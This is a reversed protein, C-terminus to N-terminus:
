DKPEGTKVANPDEVEYGHPSIPNLVPNHFFTHVGNGWPFPKIIRRLYPVDVFEPRPQKKNEMERRYVFFSTVILAPMAVFFVLFRWFREKQSDATDCYDDVNMCRFRNKPDASEIPPCSEDCPHEVSTTCTTSPESCEEVPFSTFFGTDSETKSCQNKSPEQHASTTQDRCGDSPSKKNCSSDESSFHNCLTDRRSTTRCLVGKESNGCSSFKRCAPNNAFSYINTTPHSLKRTCLGVYGVSPCIAKSFKWTHYITALAFQLPISTGKGLLFVRRGPCNKSEIRRQREVIFANRSSVGDSVNGPSLYVMAM